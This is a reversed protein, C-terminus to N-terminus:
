ITEVRLTSGDVSVVRVKAGRPADKGSVRWISDDVRVTGNGNLIPEILDFERGIMAKGRENLFPSGSVGKRRALNRGLTVLAIAAAVFLVLEIQWSMDFAFAVIGTVLAALGLWLMFMGPAVIEIGVLVLGAVLWMWPQLHIFEPM